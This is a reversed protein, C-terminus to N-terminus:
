PRSLRAGVSILVASLIALAIAIEHAFGPDLCGLFSLDPFQYCGTAHNKVFWFTSDALGCTSTGLLLWGAASIWYALTGHPM